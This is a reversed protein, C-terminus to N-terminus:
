IGFGASFLKADLEFQKVEYLATWRRIDADAVDQERINVLFLDSSGQTWKTKEATAMRVTNEFEESVTQWRKLSTLASEVSFDHFRSLEQRIYANQKQAAQAKYSFAVTKGRAKRNELPYDFKVGVMLSEPDYPDNQSLEKAGLVDVALGPLREQEFLEESLRMKKVELEAIRVQPVSDLFTDSAKKEVHLSSELPPPSGQLQSGPLYLSLETRFRSVEIEAKMLEDERKRISRVNDTLKIAELDGAKLRRELMQTRDEALALIGKRIALKQEELRWKIFLSLAKHLYVNKKLRLEEEVQQKEIQAIALGTRLEDTGSNRLLPVSLGAFIEGAGSTQYKGDYSPFRGLGQRHGAILSVGRFPTMRELTSEIYGNDYEDEIRNRSKFTLKHDFAGQASQVDGDAAKSKLVAAEILPFNELVSKRVDAETLCFGASSFLALFFLIM